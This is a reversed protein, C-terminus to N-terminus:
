VDPTLNWDGAIVSHATDSVARGLKAMLDLNFESLGEASKFHVSFLSITPWGPFDVLVKMLRHPAIPADGEPPWRHRPQLLQVRVACAM